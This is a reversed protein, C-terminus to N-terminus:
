LLPRAALGTGARVKDSKASSTTQHQEAAFRAWWWPNQQSIRVKQIQSRLLRTSNETYFFLYIGGRLFFDGAAREFAGAALKLFGPESREGAAIQSGM